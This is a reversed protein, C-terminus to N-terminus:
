RASDSGSAASAEFTSAVKLFPTRSILTGFRSSVFGRAMAMRSYTCASTSFGVRERSEDQRRPGLPRPPAGDPPRQGLHHEREQHRAPRQPLEHLRLRRVGNEFHPLREFELRKDHAEEVPGDEVRHATVLGRRNRYVPLMGEDASGRM